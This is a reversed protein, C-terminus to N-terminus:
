IKHLKPLDEAIEIRCKELLTFMKTEAKFPRWEYLLLETPRWLFVWAIIIMIEHITHSFKGEPLLNSFIITLSVLITLWFIGLGMTRWGLRLTQKLQAEAKKKRYAFHQHVAETIDSKQFNVGSPFYLKLTIEKAAPAEEAAELILQEADENLKRYPSLLLDPALLIQEPRKLHLEIDIHKNM